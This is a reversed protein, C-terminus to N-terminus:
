KIPRTCSKELRSIYEISKEYVNRWGEWEMEDSLSENHWVSILNGGVKVVEDAISKIKALAEDQSFQLSNKLAVDMYAFPFVRLKTEFDLALDYFNFSSCIGARFGIVNSYGMSYDGEISNSILGRYSEPLRFRLYHFRSRHIPKRLITKLMKIQEVMLEPEEFSEYSPHIGVKAYDCLSKILLQFDPNYPSINKDYRGYSGFLVFFTTNVKYKQSVSLIYDFTDYPDSAKGILVKLRKACSAFNRLFLDKCFGACSRILGKGKYSYASDVDITNNYTFFHEKSVLTPYIGKLKQKLEEVWINVVPKDLFGKKYALSDEPKFRSHKDQIFPLYEEYRSVLYFVSALVDYDCVSDKSYKKFLYPLGNREFYNLEALEITTSFLIEDCCLFVEDCIKHKCYSLKPGDSEIFFGEDTTISYEIGMLEGFVLNLTYGLRNTIKRAYILLM